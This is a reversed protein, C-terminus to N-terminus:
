RPGFRLPHNGNGQGPAPTGTFVPRQIGAKAPIVSGLGPIVSGLRSHHLCSHSHRLRPRSHHLRAPFSLASSPFSPPLLPFLPASSPFSPPLLPFLPASGSVSTPPSVIRPLGHRCILCFM